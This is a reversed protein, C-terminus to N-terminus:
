AGGGHLVAFVDEFDVQVGDLVGADEAVIFVGWLIPLSTLVCFAVQRGNRDRCLVQTASYLLCCVPIKGFRSGLFCLEICKVDM